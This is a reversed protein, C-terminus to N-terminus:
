LGDWNSALPTVGTPGYGFTLDAPGPGNANRLFFVADSPRYLGVSDVGDGNWDGAM